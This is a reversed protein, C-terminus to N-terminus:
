CCSSASGSECATRTRKGKSFVIMGYQVTGDAVLDVAQKMLGRIERIDLQLDPIAGLAKGMGAMVLKRKLDSVLETLTQSEDVYSAVSFGADLFLRQYGPVTHAKALCTWPAISAAVNEPLQGDVIMDTMAFVGGPKLVRFAERAVAAQDAFTSVACECTVADLSEDDFPLQDASGQLYAASGGPM